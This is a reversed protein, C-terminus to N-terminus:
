KESDDCHEWIHNLSFFLGRESSSAHILWAMCSNGIPSWAKICYRCEHERAERKYFADGTTQTM